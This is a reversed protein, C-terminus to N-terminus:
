VMLCDGDGYQVHGEEPQLMADPYSFSVKAISRKPFYIEKYLYDALAENETICQAIQMRKVHDRISAFVQDTHQEEYYSFLVHLNEEKVKMIYFGVIADGDLVQIAYTQTDPVEAQSFPMKTRVREVMPASQIYSYHLGWNLYEQTHHLYDNNNHACIFAYTADDINSLYRLSYDVYSQQKFARCLKTQLNRIHYICKGKTTDRNVHVGLSYRPTYVTKHGLYTFIEVTEKAGWRDLCYETGYEEALSGVAILGYGNGQYKPDCWLASFWWYRKGEILEPFATIYAANEEGMFIAAIVPDDDKVFPNNIIAFARTRSVIKESLGEVARNQLVWDRLQAVTYLKLEPM